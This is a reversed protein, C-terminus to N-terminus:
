KEAASVIDQNSYGAHKLTEYPEMYVFYDVDALYTVDEGNIRKWADKLEAIVQNKKFMESSQWSKYKKIDIDFDDDAFNLILFSDSSSALKSERELENYLTRFDKHWEDWKLYPLDQQKVIVEKALADKSATKGYADSLVNQGKKQFYRSAKGGYKKAAERAAQWAKKFIASQKARRETSM